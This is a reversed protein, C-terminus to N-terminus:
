QNTLKENNKEAKRAKKCLKIIIPSLIFEYATKILIQFIIALLVQPWSMFAFGLFLRPFINMGLSIFITSDVLQGLVTSLVCRLVLKNGEGDRTKLKLFVTDNILDGFYFSIMSAFLVFSTSHLVSLDVSGPMIIALEFVGVMVLNLIFGLHCSRRTWIYDIEGLMDSVTIAVPYLILAAPLTVQFTDITFLTFTKAAIINSVLLCVINIIVLIMTLPRISENKFGKWTETFDGFLNFKKKEM